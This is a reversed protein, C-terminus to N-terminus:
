EMGFFLNADRVGCAEAWKELTAATPGNPGASSEIEDVRQKSIKLIRALQVQSLGARERAEALAKPKFKMTAM